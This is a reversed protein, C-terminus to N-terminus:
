ETEEERKRERCAFDGTECRLGPEPGDTDADFVTIGLIAGCVPCPSGAGQDATCPDRDSETM